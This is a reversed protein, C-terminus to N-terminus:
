DTSPPSKKFLSADGMMEAVDIELPSGSQRLGEVVAAREEENKNQSMKFRGEIETVEIEFARIGKLLADATEAMNEFPWPPDRHQEHELVTQEVVWHSKETDLERATGTVSVQVFNWTPVQHPKVYWAPSIYAHPGLFQGLIPRGDGLLDAQPNARALHAWLRGDRRIFPVLTSFPLGDDDACILSAFSHAEVAAWLKDPDEVRQYSPVFM